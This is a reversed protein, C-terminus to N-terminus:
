QEGDLAKCDACQIKDTHQVIVRNKLVHTVTKLMQLEGKM